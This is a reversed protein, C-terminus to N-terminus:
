RTETRRVLTFRFVFCSTEAIVLCSEYCKDHRAKNVLVTFASHNQTGAHDYNFRDWLEKHTEIPAARCVRPKASTALSTAQQAPEAANLKNQLFFTPPMLDLNYKATNKSRPVMRQRTISAGFIRVFRSLIGKSQM